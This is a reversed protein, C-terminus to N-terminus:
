EEKIFSTESGILLSKLITIVAENDTVFCNKDELGQITDIIKNQMYMGEIARDLVNDKVFDSKNSFVQTGSAYPKMNALTNM